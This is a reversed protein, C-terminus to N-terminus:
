SVANWSPMTGVCVVIPSETALPRSPARGREAGVPREVLLRSTDTPDVAVWPEIATNPYLVSGFATEQQHVNDKTCSTFPDTGTVQVLPGLTTTQGTSAFGIAYVSAILGGSTLRRMFSRTSRNVM